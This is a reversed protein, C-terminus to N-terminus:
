PLDYLVLHAAAGVLTEINLGRPVVAVAVEPTGDGTLDAFTFDAIYGETTVSQWLRVFGGEKWQLRHIRGRSFATPALRPLFGRSAGGLALGNELVLIGPGDPGPIAVVRGAVQSVEYEVGAQTRSQGLPQFSFTVASGGYVDPSAWVRHGRATWVVLRDEPTVAVVDPEAAGTLRLLALGFISVDRPLRFRAADRYRGDRWVLRTVEQEFPIQDGAEQELLWREGDAAVVRLYRRPVDYLTRMGGDGDLELVRSRVGNAGALGTHTVLVVQARGTGNVDAADVSLILGETDALGTALRTLGGEEQWRHLALSREQGVVLEVVGDGDVDGAALARAPVGLPVRREIEPTQEWAFRPPFAARALPVRLDVLVHGTAASVWQAVLSRAPGERVLRSTLVAPAGLKRAVELPDPTTALGTADLVRGPEVALFRGTKDLLASLRAVLLLATQDAREFPASVGATPLVAVGLRGATLRAGDGPRLRSGGEARALRARAGAEDVETVVLTGLAVEAHGLPQDTVPHRFVEGKRYAALELGPRLARLGAGELRVREGEVAVVRAEVKPFAAALEAAVQQYTAGLDQLLDAGAPTGALLVSAGLLV